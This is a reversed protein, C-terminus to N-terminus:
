MEFGYPALRQIPPIAIAGCANPCYIDPFIGAIQEARCLVASEPWVSATQHDTSKTKQKGCTM